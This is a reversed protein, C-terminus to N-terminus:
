QRQLIQIQGATASWQDTVYPTAPAITECINDTVVTGNYLRYVVRNTSNIDIITPARPQLNLQLHPLLSTL